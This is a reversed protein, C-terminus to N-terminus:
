ATGSAKATLCRLRSNRAIFATVFETGEVGRDTANIQPECVEAGAEEGEVSLCAFPWERWM